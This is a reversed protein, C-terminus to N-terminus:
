PDDQTESIDIRREKEYDIVKDHVVKAVKNQWELYKAQLNISYLKEVTLTHELGQTPGKGPILFKKKKNDFHPFSSM